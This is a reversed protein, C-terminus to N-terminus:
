WDAPIEKEVISDINALFERLKNKLYNLTYKKFKIIRENIKYAGFNNSWIEKIEEYSILKFDDIIIDEKLIYDEELYNVYQDILELFEKSTKYKNNEINKDDSNINIKLITKAFDYFTYQLPNYEAGLELLISDTYGQFIKNPSIVLLEEQRLDYNYALYALRHFAVSSKGSGACGQVLVSKDISLRIIKDQEMQVTEVIVGLKETDGTEIQKKIYEDENNSNARYQFVDIVKSDKITIKRKDLIIGELVLNDNKYNNVKRDNKVVESYEGLDYKQYISAIPSAWSYVIIEDDIDVRKKGIYVPISENEDKFKILLKAFYPNKLDVNQLKSQELMKDKYKIEDVRSYTNIDRLEYERILKNNEEIKNNILSLKKDLEVNEEYILSKNQM